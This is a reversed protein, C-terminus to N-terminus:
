ATRQNNSDNIDNSTSRIKGDTNTGNKSEEMISLLILQKEEKSMKIFLKIIGDRYYTGLFSKLLQGDSYKGLKTVKIAKEISSIVRKQNSTCFMDINTTRIDPLNKWVNGCFEIYDFELFAILDYVRKIQPLTIVDPSPTFEFDYIENIKLLIASALNQQKDLPMLNITNIFNFFIAKFDETGIAEIITNIDYSVEADEKVEESIEDDMEIQHVMAIGYLLKENDM